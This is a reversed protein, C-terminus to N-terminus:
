VRIKTVVRTPYTGGLFWVYLEKTTKSSPGRRTPLVQPRPTTTELLEDDGVSLHTLWFEKLIVDLIRACDVISERGINGDEVYTWVGEM